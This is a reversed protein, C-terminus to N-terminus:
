PPRSDRYGVPPNLTQQLQGKRFVAFSDQDRQQPAHDAGTACAEQSCSLWTANTVWELASLSRNLCGVFQDSSPGADHERFKSSALRFFCRM